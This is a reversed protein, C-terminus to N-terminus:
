VTNRKTAKETHRQLRRNHYLLELNRTRIFQYFAISFMSYISGSVLHLTFLIFRLFVTRSDHSWAERVVMKQPVSVTYM